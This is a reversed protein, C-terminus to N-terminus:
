GAHADDFLGKAALARDFDLERQATEPRIAMINKLRREALMFVVARKSDTAFMTLALFQEQINKLGEESARSARSPPVRV